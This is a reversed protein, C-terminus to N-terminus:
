QPHFPIFGKLYNARTDVHIITDADPAANRPVAWPWKSTQREFFRMPGRRTYVTRRFRNAIIQAVSKGPCGPKAEAGYCCLLKIPGTHNKINTSEYLYNAFECPDYTNGKLHVEGPKGHIVIVDSAKPKRGAADSPLKRSIRDLTCETTFNHIYTEGGPHTPDERNIGFPSNASHENDRMCDEIFNKFSNTSGMRDDEGCLTAIEVGNSGGRASSLGRSATSTLSSGIGDSVEEGGFMAAEEMEIDSFSEAGAGGTVATFIADAVFTFATVVANILIKWWAAEGNPDIMNMPNNGGYVFPSAFQRKPDTGYFRRLVPDYLRAGANYLGTETDFEYGGFLYQLLEL